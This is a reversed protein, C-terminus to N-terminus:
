SSNRAHEARTGGAREETYSFRYTFAFRYYFKRIVRNWNRM